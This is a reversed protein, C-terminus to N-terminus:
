TALTEKLGKHAKFRPVIKEPVKILEGTKPNRAQRAKRIAIDFVGFGHLVVKNGNALETRIYDLISDLAKESNAKNLGTKKSVSDVIDSKAM